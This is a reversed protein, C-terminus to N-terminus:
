RRDPARGGPDSGAEIIDRADRYIAEFDRVTVIPPPGDGQLASGRVTASRELARLISRRAQERAEADAPHARSALRRAALQRDTASGLDTTSGLTREVAAGVAAVAGSFDAGVRAQSLAAAMVEPAGAPTPERAQWAPRPRRGGLPLLRLAALIVAALVGLALLGLLPEQALAASLTAVSEDIIRVSDAFLADITGPSAPGRPEYAGTQAAWPLVVRVACASGSCYYRLANAALQKDGHQHLMENIFLSGDAIALLAGPPRKAEAIFAPGGAYTLVAEAEGTLEYAVPHNAVIRSGASRINFFLFHTGEPDFAPFGPDDRFYADHRPATVVPQIGVAELLGGSAGYDDAVIVRGGDDIFALAAERDIPAEPHLFLLVDSPEVTSWDLAEEFRLEVRAEDATARLYSLGTWDASDPDYDRAAATPLLLAAV